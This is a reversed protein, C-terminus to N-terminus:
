KIVGCAIRNGGGGMPPQDTYNDGGAHLMLSHNKINSIKLRPAIEPHAAQGNADVYLAPLDGLHGTDSYPGAHKNTKQPDLHGGAAMGTDACSPNQHIHFGHLGPLLNHLNPTILLGYKTDSFTVTGLSKEQAGKATSYVTTTIDSAYVSVAFVSLFGILACNILKNRM